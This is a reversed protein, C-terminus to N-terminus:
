IWYSCSWPFLRFQSNLHAQVYFDVLGLGENNEYGFNEKYYAKVKPSSLTLDPATSTSGASISAYVKTKLFDPLLDKLGSEKIWRMLHVSNGGSFFLVDAQQLKPLWVNKPLASIDVIDLNKLGLNKINYLDDAFWSKDGQAVNMATPIFAISTESPQKGVLEFLAKAISPNTIGDSTLLLKM